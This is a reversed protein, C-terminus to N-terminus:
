KLHTKKKETLVGFSLSTVEESERGYIWFRLNNPFKLYQLCIPRANLFSFWPMQTCKSFANSYM